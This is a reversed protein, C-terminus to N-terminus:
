FDSYVDNKVKRFEKKLMKNYLQLLKKNKFLM